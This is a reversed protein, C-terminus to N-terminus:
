CSITEVLPEFLRLDDSVCSSSQRRLFTVPVMLIGIRSVRVIGCRGIPEATRAHASIIPRCFMSKTQQQIHLDLAKRGMKVITGGVRGIPPGGQQSVSAAVTRMCAFLMAAASLECGGTPGVLLSM